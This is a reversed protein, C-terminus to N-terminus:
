NNGFVENTRDEFNEKNAFYEKARHVVMVFLPKDEQQVNVLKLHTNLFDSNYKGESYLQGIAANLFATSIISIGEFDLRIKEDDGFAEVLGNYVKGGADTAVAITSDIVERVILNKMIFNMNQLFVSFYHVM